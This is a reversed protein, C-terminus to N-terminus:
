AYRWRVINGSGQLWNWVLDESMEHYREGSKSIAYVMRGKEPAKSADGDHKVWAGEQPTEPSAACIADYMNSLAAAAGDATGGHGARIWMLAAQLMWERKNM